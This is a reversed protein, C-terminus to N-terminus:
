REDVSIRGCKQSWQQSICSIIFLFRVRCVDSGTRVRVEEVVLSFLFLHDSHVTASQLKDLEFGVYADGMGYLKSRVSPCPSHSAVPESEEVGNVPM